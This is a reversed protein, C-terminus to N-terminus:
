VASSESSQQRARNYAEVASSRQRARYYVLVGNYDKAEAATAKCSLKNSQHPIAYGSEMVVVDGPKLLM